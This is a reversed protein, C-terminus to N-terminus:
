QRLLGLSKFASALDARLGSFGANGSRDGVSIMLLRGPLGEPALERCIARLRRRVRNRAVAGGFRRRVSIITRELGSDVVRVHVWRGRYRRGNEFLRQIERRLRLSARGM